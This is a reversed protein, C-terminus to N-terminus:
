HSEAMVSDVQGRTQPDTQTIMGWINEKVIHVCGARHGTNWSQSAQTHGLATVRPRTRPAEMPGPRSCGEVHSGHEDQFM